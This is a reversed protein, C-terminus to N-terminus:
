HMEMSLHLEVDFQAILRKKHQFAVTFDDGPPLCIDSTLLYPRAKMSCCCVKPLHSVQPLSESADDQKLIVGKNM